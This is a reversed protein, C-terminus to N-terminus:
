YAEFSISFALKERFPNLEKSLADRESDSLDSIVSLLNDWECFSPLFLNDPVHPTLITAADSKLIGWNHQFYKEMNICSAIENLKYTIDEDLIGSESLAFLLDCAEDRTIFPTNLTDKKM